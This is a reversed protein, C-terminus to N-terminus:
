KGGESELTMKTIRGTWQLLTEGRKLRAESGYVKELDKIMKLLQGAKKEEPVMMNDMSIESATWSKMEQWLARDNGCVKKIIKLGRDSNNEGPILGYKRDFIRIDQGFLRETRLARQNSEQQALLKDRQDELSQKELIARYQDDNDGSSVIERDLHSIKNNLDHIQTRVRMSEAEKEIDLYPRGDPYHTPMKFEPVESQQSMTEAVAEVKPIKSGSGKHDAGKGGPHKDWQSTPSDQFNSIHYKGDQGLEIEIRAGPHVLNYGKGTPDPHAKQFENWMNHAIKGAEKHNVGQGELDKIIAGEFSSNKEVNIGFYKTKEMGQNSIESVPKIHDGQGVGSGHPAGAGPTELQTSGGLTGGPHPVVTESKTGFANQWAKSGWGGEGIVGLHRLIDGTFGGGVVAMLAGGSALRVKDWIKYRQLKDDASFLLEKTKKNYLEHMQDASLGELEKEFGAAGKEARKMRSKRAKEEMLTASAAGSTLGSFIRKFTAAATFATLATGSLTVIGAGMAAGTLGFAAGVGLKATLPLDKYWKNFKVMKERFRTGWGSNGVRVNDHEDALKVRAEVEMLKEMEAFDEAKGGERIVRDVRAKNLDHLKNEYLARLYTVDQDDVINEGTKDGKKFEVGGKIIGLFKGVKQWMGRKKYDMELYEKRAKAVDIEMERLKYDASRDYDVQTNDIREQPTERKIDHPIHEVGYKASEEEIQKQRKQEPSLTEEEQDLSVDEADPNAEVGRGRKLEEEAFAQDRIRDIEDAPNTAVPAVEPKM